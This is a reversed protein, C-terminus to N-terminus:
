PEFPSIKYYQTISMNQNIVRKYGGLLYLDIPKFYYIHTLDVSVITDISYAFSLIGTM